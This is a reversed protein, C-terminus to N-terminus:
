IGGENSNRQYTSAARPTASRLRSRMLLDLQDQADSERHAQQRRSAQGAEGELNAGAELEHQGEIEGAQEYRSQRHEVMSSM